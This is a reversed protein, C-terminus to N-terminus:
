IYKLRHKILTLIINQGHDTYIKLRTEIIREYDIAALEM